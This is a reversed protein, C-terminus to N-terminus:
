FKWVHGGGEVVWNGGLEVSVDAADDVVDDVVLLAHAGEWRVDAIRTGVILDGVAGAECCGVGDCSCEFADVLEAIAVVLLGVMVADRKVGTGGEGLVDVVVSEVFVEVEVWGFEDEGFACEGM